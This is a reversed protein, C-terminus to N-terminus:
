VQCTKVAWHEGGPDLIDGVVDAHLHRYQVFTSFEPGNFAHDKVAIVVHPPGVPTITAKLSIRYKSRKHKAAKVRSSGRRPHPTQRVASKARKPLLESGWSKSDTSACRTFDLHPRPHRFLSLFRDKNQQAREGEAEVYTPTPKKVTLNLRARVLVMQPRSLSIGTKAALRSCYEDDTLFPEHQVLLRLEDEYEPTVKARPNNVGARDPIRPALSQGSRSAALWRSQSQRSPGLRQKVDAASFGTTRMDVAAKRLDVSYPSTRKM